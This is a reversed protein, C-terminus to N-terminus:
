TIEQQGRPRNGDTNIALRARTGVGGEGRAEMKYTRTETLYGCESSTTWANM